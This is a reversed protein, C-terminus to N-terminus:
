RDSVACAGQLARTCSERGIEDLRALFLHAEAEKSLARSGYADSAGRASMRWHLNSITTTLRTRILDFLLELEADRLATVSHYGSVFPLIHELPEDDFVRLYSAAVAVDIILPARIMDGFDIFGVVDSMQMDVLVNDPNADDHIVQQRLGTFLPLARQEFDDLATSTARRVDNNDIHKLISRLQLARQMDWSLVPRDGAHEFDRLSEGLQALRRGFSRLLDSSLTADRLMIGEVYSLLQVLHPHSDGSIEAVPDGALTNVVKPVAVPCDSRQLHMMAQFQFNTAIPDENANAIKLIFRQGSETEVRSIQDRESPLAHLKGALGYHEALLGRLTEEDFSPAGLLDM